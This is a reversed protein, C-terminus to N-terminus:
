EYSQSLTAGKEGWFLLTRTATDRCFAIIEGAKPALILIARLFTGRWQFIVGCL